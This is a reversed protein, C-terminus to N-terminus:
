AEIGSYYARIAESPVNCPPLEKGAVHEYIQSIAERRAWVPGIPCPPSQSECAERETEQVSREFWSWGNGAGERESPLDVPGGSAARKQGRAVSAQREGRSSTPTKRGRSSTPQNRGQHWGPVGSALAGTQAPRRLSRGIPRDPVPKGQLRRCASLQGLELLKWHYYSGLGVWGMYDSLGKLDRNTIDWFLKAIYPMFKLPTLEKIDVWECDKQEKM